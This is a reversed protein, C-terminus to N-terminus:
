TSPPAASIDSLASRQDREMALDGMTVIGVVAGDDAVPVRRVGHERMLRVVDDADDDPSVVVIEATCIDGIRTRSPKQGEAVARVVIDRDTALGYLTGDPRSVLVDGIGQERMVQAVETVPTDKALMVPSATMVDRVKQAM